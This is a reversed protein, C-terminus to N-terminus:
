IQSTVQSYTTKRHLLFIQCTSKRAQLRLRGSQRIKFYDQPVEPHHQLDEGTKGQEKQGITILNLEEGTIQLQYDKSHLSGGVERAQKSPHYTVLLYETMKYEKRPIESYIELGLKNKVQDNYPTSKM